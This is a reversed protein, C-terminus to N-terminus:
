GGSLEIPKVEIAAAVARPNVDLEDSKSCNSCVVNFKAVIAAKTIVVCSAVGGGIAGALVALGFAAAVKPATWM